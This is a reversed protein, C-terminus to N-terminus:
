RVFRCRQRPDLRGVRQLASRAHKKPRSKPRDRGVANTALDQGAEQTRAAVSRRPRIQRRPSAAGRRAADLVVRDAIRELLRGAEVAVSHPTGTELATSLARTESTDDLLRPGDNFTWGRIEKEVFGHGNKHLLEVLQARWARDHVTLLFQWDAFDQLLWDILKVRVTSDVSQLVDDLILVKAQGRRTAARAVELFFLLALLDQKGESFISQPDVTLGSVTRISLDISLEGTRGFEVDVQKVWPDGIIHTFARSLPDSVDGLLVALRKVALAYKGSSRPKIAQLTRKLSSIERNLEDLRRQFRSAENPLKRNGRELEAKTQGGYFALSVAHNIDRQSQPQLSLGARRALDALLIRREAKLSQFKNTADDVSM